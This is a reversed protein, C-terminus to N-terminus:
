AINFRCQYAVPQQAFTRKCRHTYGYHHKKRADNKAQRQASTPDAEPNGAAYKATWDDTAAVLETKAADPVAWTAANAVVKETFNIVFDNFDEENGPIYDSRKSM